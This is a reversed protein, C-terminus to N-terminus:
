IRQATYAAISIQHVRNVIDTLLLVENMLNSLYTHLEAPENCTKSSIKQSNKMGSVFCVNVFAFSLHSRNFDAFAHVNKSAYHLYIATQFRVQRGDGSRPVILAFPPNEVDADRWDVGTKEAKRRRNYDQQKDTDMAM